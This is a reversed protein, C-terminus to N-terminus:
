HCDRFFWNALENYTVGSVVPGDSMGTSSSVNGDCRSWDIDQYPSKSPPYGVQQALTTNAAFSIGALALATALKVSFKVFRGDTSSSFFSNM